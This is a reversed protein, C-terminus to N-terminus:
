RTDIQILVVLDDSLQKFGLSRYLHEAPANKRTVFLILENEDKSIKNIALKLLSKGLGKGQYAKKVAIELITPIENYKDILIVAVPQERHMVILSCKLLISDDSKLFENILGRISEENQVGLIREDITGKYADELVEAIQSIQELNITSINYEEPLKPNDFEILPKLIMCYRQHDIKFGM